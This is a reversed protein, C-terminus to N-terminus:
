MDRILCDKNAELCFLHLFPRELPIDGFWTDRWFRTASGDKVQRKIYSHPIIGKDHMHDIARVIRSWTGSGGCQHFFVSGATGYSGHIELIVKVWLVEPSNFFRWRWKKLFSINLAELSGIDLGSKLKSALVSNWSIWPIKKIGDTCGWFFDARLELHKNILKPMPFLSLYYVGLSGLMSTILTSRGGISLMNAKWKSLRRKFKEIIPNWEKIRSMNSGVPIGLYTFPLQVGRYLGVDIADEVAVHLAEMVLIFLFPSLPDGQHLGRHLSFEYSPSGNILVSVKASKLCGQIWGRWRCGFGMFVM